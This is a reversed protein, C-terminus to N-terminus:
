EMKIRNEEKFHTLRKFFLNKAFTYLEIDLSNLMKIQSLQSSNLEPLINGARTEDETLQTFPTVFKLGFTKEFLYQSEEQYETLGFFAMEQLNKRASELMFKGRKSPSMGTTNYCNVQRLDALMRTQRNFALNWPCGIFEEFTVDSLDDRTFCPPLEKKSPSRGNCRLTAGRWMTGMYQVFAFESLFRAIPERIITIYMFKRRANRGDRKNMYKAVCEHHETWDAHLGCPWGLHHRSFLWIKKSGPRYCHCVRTAKTQQKTAQTRPSGRRKRSCVCPREIDLNNVLQAGFRSGGTKQIHLYVMVDNGRMDFKHQRVTRTTDMETANVVAIERVAFFRRLPILKFAMLVVSGTTALLIAAFVNRQLNLGGGCACRLVM